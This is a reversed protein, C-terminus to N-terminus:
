LLLDQIDICSMETVRITDELDHYVKAKCTEFCASEDKIGQRRATSPCDTFHFLITLEYNTGQVTQRRASVIEISRVGNTRTRSGTLTEIALQKVKESVRSVDIDQWGGAIDRFDDQARLSIRRAESQCLAVALVIVTLLFTMNLQQALRNYHARNATLTLL